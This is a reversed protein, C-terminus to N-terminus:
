DQAEDKESRYKYHRKFIDPESDAFWLGSSDLKPTKGIESGDRMKTRIIAAFAERAQNNGVSGLQSSFFGNVLLEKAKEQDVGHTGMYFLSEEDIPGIASSHTAKVKNEDISMAPISDIRASRDLLVGSEEVFSRSDKSGNVIKSFGKLYCTASGMAAARTALRATTNNSSNVINTNIDMKQGDSGFIFENVDVSSSYDHAEITGHAKTASGGSYFYNMKLSSSALSKADYINLVTTDYSENHLMNIECKSYERSIIRHSAASITRRGEASAYWELLNLKSGNGANISIRVLLPENVSAFLLNINKESDEPIDIVIDKKAYANILLNYKDESNISTPYDAEAKGIEIFKVLKGEDSLVVSGSSGIIADFSMGSDKFVADYFKRLESEDDPKGPKTNVIELLKESGIPIYRKKYLENTEEQAAKYRGVLEKSFEAYQEM